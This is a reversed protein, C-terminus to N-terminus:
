TSVVEYEVYHDKGDIHDRPNLVDVELKTDDKSAKVYVIEPEDEKVPEPEPEPEPEPIPELVPEPIPEPIPEPEPEPDPAAEPQPEPEPEPEPQPEPEPEPEPEPQPEPEPEPQPEPEPEPDPVSRVVVIEPEEIVPVPVPEPEPKPEDDDDDGDNEVVIVNAGERKLREVEVFHAQIALTEQEEPPVFGLKDLEEIPLNQLSHYDLTSANSRLIRRAIDRKRSQESPLTLAWGRIRPDNPDQPPRQRPAYVDKSRSQYEVPLLARPLPKVFDPNFLRYKLPIYIESEKPTDDPSEPDKEDTLTLLDSVCYKGEPIKYIHAYFWLAVTIFPLPILAMYQRFRPQTENDDYVATANGAFIILLTVLQFFITSFTLINFLKPFYSGNTEHEIDYVYNLQYKMVIFTIGFFLMCFPLIVPAVISFTLSISFATILISYFQIFDMKALGNLEYNDRPTMKFFKNRIFALALAVFQLMVLGFGAYFSALLAIYFYSNQAFADIATVVTTLLADKTISTPLGAASNQNAIVGSIVSYLFIQIFTFAYM